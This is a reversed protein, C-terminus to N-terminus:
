VLGEFIYTTVSSTHVEADTKFLMKHLCGQTVDFIKVQLPLAACSTIICISIVCIQTATGRKLDAASYLLVGLASKM